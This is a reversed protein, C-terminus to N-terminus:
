EKQDKFSKFIGIYRALDPSYRGEVKGDQDLTAPSVSGYHSCDGGDVLFHLKRGDALTIRYLEDVREGDGLHDYDVVEVDAITEGVLNALGKREFM